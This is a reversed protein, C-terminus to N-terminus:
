VDLKPKKAAPAETNADDGDDDAPRSRKAPAELEALPVGDWAELGWERLSACTPILHSYMYDPDMETESGLQAMREAVLARVLADDRQYPLYEWQDLDCYEWERTARNFQRRSVGELVLGNTNFAVNALGVVPMDYETELIYAYILLQVRYKTYHSELLKSTAPSNGYRAWDPATKGPVPGDYKEIFKWDLIVYSDRDPLGDPHGAPLRFLGDMSGALKLKESFIIREMEHPILDRLSRHTSMAELFLAFQPTEEHLGNENYFHEINAHHATGAESATKGKTLWEFAIEGKTKGYYKSKRDMIDAGPNQALFDAESLSQRPDNRGIPASNVYRVRKITQWADYYKEIVPEGDFKSFYGGIYTTVSTYRKKHDKLNFYIHNSEQLKVVDRAADHNEHLNFPRRLSPPPNRLAQLMHPYTPLSRKGGEREKRHQVQPFVM